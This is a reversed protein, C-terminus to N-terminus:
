PFTVTHGDNVDCLRAFVLPVITTSTGRVSGDGLLFNCLGPHYSGFAFQGAHNSTGVDPGNAIVMILGGATVAPRSANRGRGADYLSFLGCDWYQPSAADNQCVELQTAPIHKKGFIIQHSTGDTMRAFTDRAIWNKRNSTDPAPPLIAPRFPAKNEAQKEWGPIGGFGWFDFYIAAGDIDIYATDYLTEDGPTPGINVPFVYDTRPGVPTGFPDDWGFDTTADDLVSPSGRRSPCVMWPKGMGKREEPFGAIAAWWRVDLDYVFSEGISPGSNDLIFQWTAINEMFPMIMIHAVASNVHINSPPLGQLSDHFNHVAIGIQKLNNTCQSRRAAERAAQIAPLLLAILVGIIAIVVLLEVLTFAGRVGGEMKIRLSQM